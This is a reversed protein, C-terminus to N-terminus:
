KIGAIGRHKLKSPLERLIKRTIWPTAHNYQRMMNLDITYLSGCIIMELNTIGNQFAEEMDLSMREEYQWWGGDRGEYYWKYTGHGAAQAPKPVELIDPNHLYDAPIHARCLPCKRSNLAVGKICLFCFIHRCPLRAPHSCSQLCIACDPLKSEADEEKEEESDSLEVTVLEKEQAEVSRKKSRTNYVRQFKEAMDPCPFEPTLLDSICREICDTRFQSKYKIYIFM